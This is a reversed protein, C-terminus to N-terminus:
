ILTQFLMTICSLQVLPCPHPQRQVPHKFWRIILLCCYFLSTYVKHLTWPLPLARAVVRLDRLLDLRPQRLRLSAQLQELQLKPVPQPKLLQSLQQTQPNPQLHHLHPQAVAVQGRGMCYMSTCSADYTQKCVNANTHNQVNKHMGLQCISM